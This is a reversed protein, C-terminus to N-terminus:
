CEIYIDIKIVLFFLIRDKYTFYIFQLNYLLGKAGCKPANIIIKKCLPEHNLHLWVKCKELFNNTASYWKVLAGGICSLM